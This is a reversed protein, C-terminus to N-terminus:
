RKPRQSKPILGARVARAQARVKQAPLGPARRTPKGQCNRCKGGPLAEAPGPARCESCELTRLVTRPERAPPLKDQLRKAVFAAAHHVHDPLGSTLAQLIEPETAGRNLWEGVQPELAVCDRHSLSLAPAKRGLAALLIFSRSRTARQTDKPVDGRAFSEWWTDDRATRSFFTRTVWLLNEGSA